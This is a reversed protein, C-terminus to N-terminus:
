PVLIGCVTPCGLFFFFDSMHIWAREQARSGPIQTGMLMGVVTAEAIRETLLPGSSLGLM